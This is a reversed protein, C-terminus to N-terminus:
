RTLFDPFPFKSSLLDSEGDVAEFFDLLLFKKDFPPWFTELFFFPSEFAM